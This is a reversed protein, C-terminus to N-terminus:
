PKSAEPVEGDDSRRYWRMYFLLSFVALFGMIIYIILWTTKPSPPKMKHAIKTSRDIKPIAMLVRNLTIELEDLTQAQKRYFAVYRQNVTTPGAQQQLATLATVVNALSEELGVFEGQTAVKNFSNTAEQLMAEIRPENVNWRDRIKVSYFLREGPAMEIRDKYLYAVSSEADMGVDLGDADLVDDMRVEPPLERKLRITRSSTESKNRVAIRIVAVRNEDTEYADRTSLKASRLDVGKLVGPDIGAAMALNELRAVDIKVRKMAQVNAEYARIHDIAKRGTSIANENQRKRIEALDESVQDQLAKASAYTKEKELKQTVDGIHRVFADLETKEIKWIDNIEVDFVAIEKGGLEIDKHVFYVDHKIDYGLLLGGLSIIHNTNVGAPLNSKIQVRQTVDIPNGAQVRLVIKGAFLSRPLALALITILMVSFTSATSHRCRKRHVLSM